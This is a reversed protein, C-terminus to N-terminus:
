ATRDQERYERRLLAFVLEDTWIGDQQYDQQYAEVFHAEKRFGLSELLCVARYNQPDVRAVVRHTHYQGFLHHLVERLAEQALGRGWRAQTLTVGLEMQQANEDITHLGVDGIAQGTTRDILVLQFWTGKIGFNPACRDIFDLAEKMSGFVSSQFQNAEANSRYRFIAEADTRQIPRLKLRPTLFQMSTM